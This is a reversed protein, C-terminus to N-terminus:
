VLMKEINLKAASLIKLSYLNGNHLMFTLLYIVGLIFGIIQVTITIKITALKSHIVLKQFGFMLRMKNDEDSQNRKCYNNSIICLTIIWVIVMMVKIQATLQYNIIALETFAVIQNHMSQSAHSYNIVIAIDVFM